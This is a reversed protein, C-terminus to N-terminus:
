VAPPAAPPKPAYQSLVNALVIESANLILTGQESHVFVPAVASASGLLGLMLKEFANM